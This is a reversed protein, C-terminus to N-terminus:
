KRTDKALIYKGLIPAVTASVIALIIFMAFMNEDIVGLETSIDAAAVILSLRAAHFLGFATSEKLGLGGLKTVAAVSIVKSLIGATVIVLLIILNHVNSFLAPLNVKAGTFIFFLPIFFGYGFSQLNEKGLAAEPIIESIILGAIFAGIISHFGLQNSIVALLFILAFALRVEINFHGEKSLRSGIKERLRGRNLLWPLLFLTLILILSYVFEMGFSGQIAVLAFALLFISIIDVLVVSTLLMQSSQEALQIDKLLPLILGLSTTCLIAGLLLPHVDVWYSLLVGVLFPVLVSTLAVAVARKFIYRSMKGFNMELGALFMLYVLGFSSFFDVVPYKPILDFLSIGIVIGFLLETVIVPVRIGRAIPPLLVIGTFVILLTITLPDM